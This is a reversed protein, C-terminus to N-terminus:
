RSQQSNFECCSLSVRHESKTNGVQKQLSSTVQDGEGRVSHLRKWAKNTVRAPPKRSSVNRATTIAPGAPWWADCPTMLTMDCTIKPVDKALSSVMKASECMAKKARIAFIREPRPERAQEPRIFVM